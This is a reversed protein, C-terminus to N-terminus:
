DTQKSWFGMFFVAIAIIGDLVEKPIDFGITKIIMAAGAVLGAVTTYPDKMTM